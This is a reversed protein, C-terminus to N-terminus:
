LTQKKGISFYLVAGILPLFLILIIWLIKDSDNSFQSKVIDVLAWIWIISFICILLIEWGAPFGFLLQINM